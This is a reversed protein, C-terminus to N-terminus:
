WGPLLCLTCLKFLSRPLTVFRQLPFPKKVFLVVVIVNTQGEFHKLKKFM